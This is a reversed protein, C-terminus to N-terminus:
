LRLASGWVLPAAHAAAICCVGEVAEGQLAHMCAHAAGAMDVSFADKQKAGFDLQAKRIAMRPSPLERIFFGAPAGTVVTISHGLDVLARCVQRGWRKMHM